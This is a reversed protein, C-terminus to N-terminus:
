SLSLLSVKQHWSHVMQLWTYVAGYASGGMGAVIHRFLWRIGSAAGNKNKKNPVAAGSKDPSDRM